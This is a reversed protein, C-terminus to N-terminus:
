IRQYNWLIGNKKIRKRISSESTNLEKAIETFPKRGEEMLIKLIKTDKEDM